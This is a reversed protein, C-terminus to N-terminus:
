RHREAALDISSRFRPKAQRERAINETSVPFAPPNLSSSFSSKASLPKKRHSKKVQSFFGMEGGGEQSFVETRSSGIKEKSGREM